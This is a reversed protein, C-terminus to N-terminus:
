KELLFREGVLPEPHGDLYLRFEYLGPEEFPVHLLRFRVGDVFVDERVRIPTPGHVPVVPGAETGDAALMVLGIWVSYRGPEGFFEAYAWLFELCLPYGFEEPRTRNMVSQLSYPAKEDLPDFVVNRCLLLHRAQIPLEDV